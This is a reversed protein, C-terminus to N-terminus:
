ANNVESDIQKQADDLAQQPSKNQVLAKNCETYLIESFTSYKPTSPRASTQQLVEAFTELQPAKEFYEDTYLDERVPLYSYEVALTEQVEKTAMYSAFRQAADTTDSYANIFINWGGLCSNNADPNGEAKPMKAVDFKGQIPSDDANMLSVAYPWNRM